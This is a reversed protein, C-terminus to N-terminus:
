SRGSSGSYSSWPLFLCFFYKGDAHSWATGNHDQYQDTGNNGDQLLYDYDTMSAHQKSEIQAQSLAQRVNLSAVALAVQSPSSSQPPRSVARTPSSRQSTKSSSGLPLSLPPKPSPTTLLTSSKHPSPPLPRAMEVCEVNENVLLKPAPAMSNDSPKTLCQFSIPSCRLSPSSPLSTRVPSTPAVLFSEPVRIFRTLIPFPIKCLYSRVSVFARFRVEQRDKTLM